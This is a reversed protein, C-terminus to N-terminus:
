GLGEVTAALVRVLDGAVQAGAEVVEEHNLPTASIGAAHNSLCSVAGVRLGTAWGASAEAVTSMGVAHAGLRELMRIEAPTEYTPGLMAAYVGRQVPVELASAAADIAAGVEPDYPTGRGQEGRRLPARSQLNLHDEIRMLGPVAWDAELCGAANTLLLTRAGLQAAARVSATVEDPHRGEYFHVRGQQALVRKGGLQGLVFRGAHGPVGSSPMGDVEEFPVAQAGELSDAFAGLGSGLVVLVDFDALGAGAMGAALRSEISSAATM